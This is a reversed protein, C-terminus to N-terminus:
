ELDDLQTYFGVPAKGLAARLVTAHSVEDGMIRAAADLLPKTKFQSVAAQYARAATMELFLALRLVDAESKLEFASFDYESRPDAPSGGLSRIVASLAERHSEHSSKFTGGVALVGKSLLGSGGALGYAYIATHELVLAGNLISLDGTPRADGGPATAPKRCGLLGGSAALTAGGMLTSLFLRRDSM